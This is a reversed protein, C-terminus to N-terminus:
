QVVFVYFIGRRLDHFFTEKESIVLEYMDNTVACKYYFIGNEKKEVKKIIDAVVEDIKMKQHPSAPWKKIMSKVQAKNLKIKKASYFKSPFKLERTTGLKELVLDYLKKGDEYAFGMELYAQIHLTAIELYKINGSNTYYQYLQSIADIFTTKISLNKYQVSGAALKIAEIYASNRESQM